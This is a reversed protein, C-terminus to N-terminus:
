LEKKEMISLSIQASILLIAAAALFAVAFSVGTHLTFLKDFVMGLDVGLWAAIKSAAYGGALLLCMCTIIAIKGKEGGFKLQFPICLAQAILMIPLTVLATIKIEPLVVSNKVLCIGVTLATSFLWAGGGLLIGLIYKETIYERRSIPLTFLFAYGNDFEDSGITSLTFLAMVLTLYSLMFLTMDMCVSILIAMAIATLFFKKQAKILKFDKVLLGKM